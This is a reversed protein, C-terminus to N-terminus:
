AIERQSDAGSREDHLRRIREIVPDSRGRGVTDAARCAAYEAAREDYNRIWAARRELKAPDRVPWTGGAPFHNPVGARWPEPSLRARFCKQLRCMRVYLPDAGLHVMFEYTAEDAADFPAHLPLVRAGGPTEYVAVLWDRRSGCWEEVKAITWAVPDKAKPNRRHFLKAISVTAWSLGGMGAVGGGLRSLWGGGFQDGLFLIGLALGILAGICGAVAHSKEPRDVDVFMARTTNL